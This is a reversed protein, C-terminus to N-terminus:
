ESEEIADQVGIESLFSLCDEMSRGGSLSEIMQTVDDRTFMPRQETETVAGVGGARTHSGGDGRGGGGSREESTHTSNGTPPSADKSVAGDRPTNLLALM